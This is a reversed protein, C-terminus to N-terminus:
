PCDGSKLDKLSAVTDNGLVGSVDGEIVEVVLIDELEPGNKGDDYVTEIGKIAANRPSTSEVRTMWPQQNDAYIGVVTYSKLPM